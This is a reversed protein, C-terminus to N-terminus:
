QWRGVTRRLPRAGENGSAVCMFSKKLCWSEARRNILLLDLCEPIRPGSGVAGEVELADDVELLVRLQQGELDTLLGLLDERVQVVQLPAGHEVETRAD